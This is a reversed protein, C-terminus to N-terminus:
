FVWKFMATVVDCRLLTPDRVDQTGLADGQM